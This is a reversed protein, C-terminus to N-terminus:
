TRLGHAQGLATMSREIMVLFRLEVPPPLPPVYVLGVDTIRHLFYENRGDVQWVNFIDYRIFYLLIISYYYLLIDILACALTIMFITYQRAINIPRTLTM